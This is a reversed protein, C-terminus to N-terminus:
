ATRRDVICRVLCGMGAREVLLGHVKLLLAANAHHQLGRSVYKMLVDADDPELASLFTTLQEEKAGTAVLAKMVLAFNRDKLAADKSALPPAELAARLAAAPTSARLAADVRVERAALAVLLAADDSDEAM